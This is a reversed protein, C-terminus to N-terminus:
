IHILSLRQKNLILQDQEVVDAMEKQEAERKAAVRRMENIENYLDDFHRANTSRYSVNRIFTANPDDFPVDDKKGSLQGPTVFNIRLYTFEGEDSKSVNKLTKIHFPVAFQNIPLIISQARHDVM